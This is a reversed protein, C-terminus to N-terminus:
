GGSGADAIPATRRLETSSVNVHFEAESVAAFLDAFGVPVPIDALTRFAGEASERGAVLFRCGAARIRILAEALNAESDGYFRPQVVRAATDCGVVFAAGPFLEAKAAFTPARTLWVPARWTFQRLRRRVEAPPLPPKDANVVALEFAVPTGLRREAAAALGFHGHHVPNFSGSVLAAPPAADARMRGDLDALMAAARGSELSLLPDICDEETRDLQEGALLPVPLRVDLKAAEALANLLVVDLVHEEGERDRADKTLTLSYTTAREDTRATLYFRHDGRKPRDSVLSATCGLGLAPEGPALWRARDCARRALERSIDDSCFQEPRRGLFEVLAHEHYPTVVELVTRSGGPVNLLLGAAQTGGGTVALVCRVPRQHFAEILTRVAPDM